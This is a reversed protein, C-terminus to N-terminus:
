LSYSLWELLPKWGPTTSTFWKPPDRTSIKIYVATNAKNSNWSHTTPNYHAAVIPRPVFFSSFWELFESTNKGQLLVVYTIWTIWYCVLHRNWGGKFGFIRGVDCIEEHTLTKAGVCFATFNACVVLCPFWLYTAYSLHLYIHCLVCATINSVLKPVKFSCLCVNWASRYKAHLPCQSAAFSWPDNPKYDEGFRSIICFPILSLFWGVRKAPTHEVLQVM